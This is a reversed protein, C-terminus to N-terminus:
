WLKSHDLIWMFVRSRGNKARATVAGSSSAAHPPPEDFALADVVGDVEVGAAAAAPPPPPNEFEANV